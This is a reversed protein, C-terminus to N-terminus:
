VYLSLFIFFSNFFFCLHLLGFIFTILLCHITIKTPSTLTPFVDNKYEAIPFDCFLIWGVIPISKM